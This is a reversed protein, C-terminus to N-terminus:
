GSRKALDQKLKNGAKVCALYAKKAAPRAKANNTKKLGSCAQSATATPKKQLKAMASVCQAFPSKKQGPIKKKSLGKCYQGPVIQCYDTNTAGPPCANPPASQGSASSSAAVALACTVLCLLVARIRM